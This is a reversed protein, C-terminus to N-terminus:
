GGGCPKWAGVTKISYVPTHRKSILAFKEVEGSLIIWISLYNLLALNYFGDSHM